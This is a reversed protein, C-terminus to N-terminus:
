SNTESMRTIAESLTAGHGQRLTRQTNLFSFRHSHKIVRPSNSQQSKPLHDGEFFDPIEHVTLELMGRSRKISLFSLASTTQTERKKLESELSTLSARDEDNVLELENMGNVADFLSAADPSTSYLADDPHFKTGTCVFFNESKSSFLQKVTEIELAYRRPSETIYVCLAEVDDPYHWHRSSGIGAWTTQALAQLVTFTFVSSTFLTHKKM